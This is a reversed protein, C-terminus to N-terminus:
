EPTRVVRMITSQSVGYEGALHTTTIGGAQYRARIEARTTPTLGVPPRGMEKGHAITKYPDRDDGYISGNAMMPQDRDGRPGDEHWPDIPFPDDERERLGLTVGSM